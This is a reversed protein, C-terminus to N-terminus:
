ILYSFKKFNNYMFKNKFIFNFNRDGLPFTLEFNGLKLDLSSLIARHYTEDNEDEVCFIEQLAFYSAHNIDKLMEIEYPM